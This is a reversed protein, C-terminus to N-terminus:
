QAKQKQKNTETSQNRFHNQMRKRLIRKVSKMSSKKMYKVEECDSKTQKNSRM